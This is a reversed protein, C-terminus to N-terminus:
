VFASNTPYLRYHLLIILPAGPNTGNATPNGTLAAIDVGKGSIHNAADSSEGFLTVPTGYAYQGDSGSTGILLSTALIGWNFPSTTKCRVILNGPATNYRAGNRIGFIVDPRLSYGTIGSVLDVAMSNLNTVQNITLDARAVFIHGVTSGIQRWRSSTGDYRFAISQGPGVQVSVAGLSLRNAASSSTAENIFTSFNSGVNTWFSLAGDYGGAIGRIKRMADTAYRVNTYATLDVGAYNDQDSTIQSPSVVGTYKLGRPIETVYGGVRMWIGQDPAASFASGTAQNPSVPIFCWPVSTTDDGTHRYVVLGAITQGAAPTGFIVDDATLTVQDNTNDVAKAKNALAQRSYGSVSLEHGKPDNATGDDILAHDKNPTYTERVILVRLDATAPDLTVLESLGTNYFLAAM